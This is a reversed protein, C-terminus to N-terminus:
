VAGLQRPELHDAGFNMLTAGVGLGLGVAVTGVADTVIDGRRGHLKVAAIPREGPLATRPTGLWYGDGGISRLSENHRPFFKSAGCILLVRICVM